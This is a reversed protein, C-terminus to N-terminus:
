KSKWQVPIAMRIAVPKGGQLAPEFEMKKAWTLTLEDLEPFGSQKSIRTLERDVSGDEKVFFEIRTIVDVEQRAIEMPMEPRPPMTKVRPMVEAATQYKSIDATRTEGAKGGAAQLPGLSLTSFAALVVLGTLGFGARTAASLPAAGIGKKLFDLRRLVTSRSAMPVGGQTIPSKITALAVRALTKSYARVDGVYRAAAANCVDECAARHATPVAWALPHFWLLSRVTQIAFIWALDASRFHSVEHALVAAQEARFEPANMREPLVIVPKFVGFAFPMEVSSSIRLEPLVGLYGVGDAASVMALRVLEDAGRSGSVIKKIAMRARLYTMVSVLAGLGWLSFLWPLWSRSSLEAGGGLNLFLEEVAGANEPLPLTIKPTLASTLPLILIMAATARWLLVRWRPNANDLLAHAAWASALLLTARWLIEVMGPWEFGFQIMTSPM